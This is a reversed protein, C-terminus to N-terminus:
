SALSLDVLYKTYMLSIGRRTSGPGVLARCMQPPPPPPPFTYEQINNAKKPMIKLVTFSVDVCIFHVPKLFAGDYFALTVAHGYKNCPWVPMYMRSKAHEVLRWVM